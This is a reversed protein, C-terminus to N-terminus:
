RSSAKFNISNCSFEKIEEEESVFDACTQPIRVLM